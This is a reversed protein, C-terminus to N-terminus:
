LGPFGDRARDGSNAAELLSRENPERDVAPENVYEVISLDGKGRQSRPAFVIHITSGRNEHRGVFIGEIATKDIVMKAAAFAAEGVDGDDTDPADPYLTLDAVTQAIFADAENHHALSTVDEWDQIVHTGEHVLDRRRNRPDMSYLM